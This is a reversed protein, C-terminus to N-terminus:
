YTRRAPTSTSHATREVPPAVPAFLVESTEPQAEPAEAGSKMTKWPMVSGGIDRVVKNLKVFGSVQHQIRMGESHLFERLGRLDAIADDLQDLSTDAVRQVIANVDKAAQAASEPDTCRSSHPTVETEQHLNATKQLVFDTLAEDIEAITM